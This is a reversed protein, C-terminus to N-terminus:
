IVAPLSSFNRFILLRAYGEIQSRLTSLSLFFITKRLREGKKELCDQQSPDLAGTLIQLALAFIQSVFFPRGSTCGEVLGLM